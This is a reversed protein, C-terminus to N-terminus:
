TWGIVVLKMNPVECLYGKRSIENQMKEKCETDGEQDLIKWAGNRIGIISRNYEKGRGLKRKKEWGNLEEIGGEAVSYSATCVNRNICRTRCVLSYPM